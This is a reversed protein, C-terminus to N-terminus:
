SHCGWEGLLAESTNPEADRHKRHWIVGITISSSIILSLDDEAFVKGPWQFITRLANLYSWTAKLAEDSKAGYHNEIDWVRRQMNALNQNANDTIVITRDGPAISLPDKEM